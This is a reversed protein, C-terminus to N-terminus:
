AGDWLHRALDVRDGDDVAVGEALLLERQLAAEYKNSIFGSHAVVRWWPVEAGQGGRLAHLAYGVLRAAGPRGALLAVRGYSSVRGRPIRRVVDYISEYSNIPAM